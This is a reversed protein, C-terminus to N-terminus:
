LPLPAPKDSSVPDHPRIGEIGHETTGTDAEGGPFPEPVTDAFSVGPFSVATMTKCDHNQKCTFCHSCVCAPATWTPISQANQAKSRTLERKHEGSRSCRSSLLAQGAQLQTHPRSTVPSLSAAHRSGFGSPWTMQASRARSVWCLCGGHRLSQWLTSSSMNPNIKHGLNM